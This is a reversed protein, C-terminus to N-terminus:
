GEAPGKSARFHRRYQTPTTGIYRKFMTSFHCNDTFGLMESIEGIPIETNMLLNQAEGIKRHLVYRMPSLGVEAKFIHALYYHSMHFYEGLDQLSFSEAYHEDLYDTIFHILEETRRRDPDAAADQKRVEQYVLNLLGNALLECVQHNDPAQGYLSHLALILHEIAERGQNYFDLVPPASAASLCNQPLGPVSLDRLVCCYSQMTHALFSSEGHLTGANCIVLNGPHLAYQQGGVGYFGSGQMVYFLELSADHQHILQPHQKHYNEDVFHMDVFKASLLPIRKSM